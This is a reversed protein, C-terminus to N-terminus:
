RNRVARLPEEEVDAPDEDFAGVIEGREGIFECAIVIGGGQSSDSLGEVSVAIGVVAACGGGPEPRLDGVVCARRM